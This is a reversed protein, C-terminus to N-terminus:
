AGVERTGAVGSNALRAPDLRGDLGAVVNEASRVAMRVATEETLAATHPTAIVREDALLPNAPDPPEVALVDLGAGAVRGDGLADLLAAEDVLEGRGTNILFAGPKMAPLTAPGILGRTAATLPCHLSVADAEGLAADLDDARSVGPEFTEAPALPDHVAVEMGFARALRAVRRGIRGAGIVLLRRGALEHTPWDPDTIYGGRRARAQYQPLRRSLALLLMMAHEAVAGANADGVTAVPVGRASLADMPLNDLGVGHKSVVRLRPAGAIMAETVPTNKVLLADAHALAERVREEDPEALVVVETDPRADLRALGERRLPKLVLVRDM